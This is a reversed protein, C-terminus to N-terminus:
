LALHLKGCRQTCCSEIMFVKPSISVVEWFCLPLQWKPRKIVRYHSVEWLKRFAATKKVPKQLNEFCIMALNYKSDKVHWHCAQTRCKLLSPLTIALKAPPSSSLSSSSPSPLPIIALFFHKFPWLPSDAAKRERVKERWWEREQLLNWPKITPFPFLFEEKWIGQQLKQLERCIVGSKGWVQSLVSSIPCTYHKYQWIQTLIKSYFHHPWAKRVWIKTMYVFLMKFKM